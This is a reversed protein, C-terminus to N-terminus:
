ETLIQEVARIASFAAGHVTSQANGGLAEGAFFLRGEVPSFIEDLDNQSMLSKMLLM